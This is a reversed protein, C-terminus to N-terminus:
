FFFRTFMKWVFAVRGNPFHLVSDVLGGLVFDMPGSITSLVEQAHGWGPSSGPGSSGSVPASVMLGSCSGNSRHIVFVKNEPFIAVILTLM